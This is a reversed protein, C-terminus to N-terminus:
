WNVNVAKGGVEVDLCVYPLLTIHCLQKGCAKQLWKLCQQANKDL